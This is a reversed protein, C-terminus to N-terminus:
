EKNILYKADRTLIEAAEIAIKKDTQADVHNIFAELNNSYTKSKDRQSASKASTLQSILSEVMEDEIQGRRNLECVLAMLSDVSTDVTFSMQSETVRGSYDQATVIYQHEGLPLTFLDVQQGDYLQTGDLSFSIGSIGSHEDKISISIPQFTCYDGYTAGTVSLEQSNMDQDGYSIDLIGCDMYTLNETDFVIQPNTKDIKIESSKTKERNDANDYSRYMLKNIGEDEIVFPEAYGTWTQGGDLSYETKAVGSCADWASVTVVADNVYWGNQGDPEAPELSLSSQPASKDLNLIVQVETRNGAKDVAGGTIVQGAGDRTVKVRDESAIGSLDDSGKFVVEIDRNYWGFANASPSIEPNVVPPTLDIKVTASKEEELNGANDISNYLISHVGESSINLQNGENYGSGNVSYRTTQVGSTEDTAALSISAERNVWDSPANDNTQPATKDINFLLTNPDEVRGAGNVSRYLVTYEGDESFSVPQSYPIWTTGQDTSYETRSIGSSSYGGLSLTVDSVYWNNLGDPEAPTVTSYTKLGSNDVNIELLKTTEVNRAKDSSRYYIVHHGQEELVFPASYNNWTAGKDLSYETYAVGSLNDLSSFSVTVSSVYWESSQVLKDGSASPTTVPGTKDINVKESAVTVNGAIDVATASVIQDKGESTVVTSPNDVSEIGSLADTGSFEVKVDSNQWGYENPLPTQNSTVEPVSKDIKVTATKPFESNDENDTAWYTIIWTGEDLLDFTAGRGNVVTEEGGNIKYHIDQIGSGGPNDSAALSVTVDYKTWGEPNLAPSIMIDTVPADSDLSSQELGDIYAWTALTKDSTGGASIVLRLTKGVYRSVDLSVTKWGTCKLGAKDGWASQSYSAVESNNSLDTLEYSFSDYGDIDYTFLNYTFRLNPDNVVFDQYIENPGINQNDTSPTGLRVMKEGHYAYTYSEANVQEVGDSVEGLAWGSLNDEEFSSNILNDAALAPTSCIFFLFVILLYFYRHSSYNGM